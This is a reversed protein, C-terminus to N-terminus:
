RAGLLKALMVALAIEAGGDCAPLGSNVIQPVDPTTAQYTITVVCQPATVAPPLVVACMPMGLSYGPYDYSPLSGDPCECRNTHFLLPPVCSVTNCIFTGDPQSQCAM